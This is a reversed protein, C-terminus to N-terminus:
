KYNWVQVDENGNIYYAKIYYHWVHFGSGYHNVNVNWWDTDFYTDSLYNTDFSEEVYASCEQNGFYAMMDHLLNTGYARADKKTQEAFIYLGSDQDMTISVSRFSQGGTNENYVSVSTLNLAHGAISSYKQRLYTKFQSEDKPVQGVPAAPKTPQVASPQTPPVATAPHVTAKVAVTSTASPLPTFTPFPTYTPLPTFTPQPTQTPIPTPTAILSAIMQTTQCARTWVIGILLIAYKVHKM